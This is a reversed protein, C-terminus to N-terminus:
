HPYITSTTRICKYLSWMIESSKNQIKVLKNYNRMRRYNLVAQIWYQLPSHVYFSHQLYSIQPLRNVATSIQIINNQPYTQIYLSLGASINWLFSSWISSVTDHDLLGFRLAQIRQVSELFPIGWDRYNCAPSAPSPERLPCYINEDCMRWRSEPGGLIGDFPYQVQLSTFIVV